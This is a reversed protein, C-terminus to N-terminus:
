TSISEVGGTGVSLYAQQISKTESSKAILESPNLKVPLAYM